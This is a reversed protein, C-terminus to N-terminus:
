LRRTRAKLSVVKRVSAMEMLLVQAWTLAISVGEPAEIACADGNSSAAIFIRTAGVSGILSSAVSICIMKDGGVKALAGSAWIVEVIVHVEAASAALADLLNTQAIAMVITVIAGILGLARTAEM